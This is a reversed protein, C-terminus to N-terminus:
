LSTKIQRFIEEALFKHGKENPHIGDAQNLEKQGAIGGLPFKVLTLSYKNKLNEFVQKFEKTYAEGYNPPAWMEVLLTKTKSDKLTQIAKEFNNQMQKPPLGRLADNGGLFLVVLDPKSKLIWKVRGPASASTSGGIGSNTIKWERNHEKVIKELLFPYSAERAVGYGETLSDGIIVLNKEKAYLSHLSGLFLVTFIFSNKFLKKM